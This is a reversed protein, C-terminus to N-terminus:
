DVRDIAVTAAAEPHARLWRRVYPCLPVVTLSEAAAREVAARVLQSATGRGRNVEPVWTHALVMRSGDLRYVLEAVGGDLAFVFRNERPHDVVGDPGGAVSV